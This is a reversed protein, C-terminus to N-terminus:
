AATGNMRWGRKSWALLKTSTVEGGTATEIDEHYTRAGSHCSQPLRKAAEWKRVAQHSVDCAAAVKTVGILEIAKTLPNEDM